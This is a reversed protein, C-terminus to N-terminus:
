PAPIAILTATASVTTGLDDTVNITVTGAETSARTLTVTSAGTAVGVLGPTSQIVEYAYPKLGGSITYEKTSGIDDTSAFTATIPTIEMTGVASVKVTDSAILNATNAICYVAQEAGAKRISYTKIYVGSNNFNTAQQDIMVGDVMVTFNIPVGILDTKLPNTYKITFTVDSSEDATAQTGTVSLSGNLGGAGDNGGGCGAVTVMCLMVVFSILRSM